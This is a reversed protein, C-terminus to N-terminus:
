LPCSSCITPFARACAPIRSTGGTCATATRLSIRRAAFCIRACLPPSWICYACCTRFSTACATPAAPQYLGTRAFVRCALAQYKVFGNLLRDRLEDGTRVKVRSLRNQWCARTCELSDCPSFKAVLREADMKTPAWGLLFSRGAREGPAVSVAASVCADALEYHEPLKERECVAGLLFGVGEMRGQAVILGNEGAVSLLRRDRVDDGMLFDCAAVLTVARTEEADNEIEVTMCAVSEAADVHWRARASLGDFACEFRTEGPAHTVRYAGRPREQPLLPAYGKETVAYLRVGWGERAVDNDFPTLRGM